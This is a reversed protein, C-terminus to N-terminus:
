EQKEEIRREKEERGKKERKKRKCIKGEKRVEETLHHESHQVAAQLSGDVTGKGVGPLPTEVLRQDRRKARIQSIGSYYFLFDAVWPPGSHM